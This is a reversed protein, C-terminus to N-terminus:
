LIGKGHFEHSHLGWSVLEVQPYQYTKTKFPVISYLLSANVVPLWSLFLHGFAWKIPSKWTTLPYFILLDTLIGKIHFVIWIYKLQKM